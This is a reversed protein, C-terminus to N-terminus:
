TGCNFIGYGNAVSASATYQVGNYVVYGNTFGTWTTSKGNTCTVGIDLQSLSSSNSKSAPFTGETNWGFFGMKQVYTAHTISTVKVSCSTTVKTGVAGYGLSQRLYINQLTLTCPSVANALSTIGFTPANQIVPEYQISISTPAVTQTELSTLNDAGNASTTSFAVPILILALIMTIKKTNM